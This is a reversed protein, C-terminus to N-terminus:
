HLKKHILSYSSSELVTCGAEIIICWIKDSHMATHLPVYIRTHTQVKPCKSRNCFFTIELRATQALLGFQWPHMQTKRHANLPMTERMKAPCVWRAGSSLHV